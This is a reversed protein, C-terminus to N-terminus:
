KSYNADSVFFFFFNKSKCFTLSKSWKYYNFRQLYLLIFFFLGQHPLFRRGVPLGLEDVTETPENRNPRASTGARSKNRELKMEISGMRKFEAQIMKMNDFVSFSKAPMVFDKSFAAKLPDFKDSLIDLTPDYDKNVSKDSKEEKDSM